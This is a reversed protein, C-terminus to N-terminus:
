SYSTRVHVPLPRSQLQVDLRQSAAPIPINHSDEAIRLGVTQSYPGAESPVETSLLWARVPVTDTLNEVRIGWGFTRTLTSYCRQAAFPGTRM